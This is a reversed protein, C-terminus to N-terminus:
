SCRPRNTTRTVRGSATGGRQFADRVQVSVRGEFVDEFTTRGENGLGILAEAALDVTRGGDVTETHVRIEHGGADRTTLGFRPNVVFSFDRVRESECIWRTGSGAPASVLGPCAVADGPLTVTTTLDLRRGLRRGYHLYLSTYQPTWLSGNDAGAYFGDTYWGTLGEERQWSRLGLTLAGVRLRGQVLWDDIRDSYGVPAGGVEGTLAARDFARAAEAGAATLRVGTVAAGDRLVEFLPSGDLRAREEESLGAVFAAAQDRDLLSLVARYDVTDFVAPDYDWDAFGSLDAEDSRFVRATLSWSLDSDPARGAFAGESWRTDFTGGGVEGRVAWNRGDEGVIQEPTKTIVNVVGAFANAGYLTSAPGYVM